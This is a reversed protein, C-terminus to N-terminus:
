KRFLKKRLAMMEDLMETTKTLFDLCEPNNALIFASEAVSRAFDIDIEDATLPCVFACRPDINVKIQIGDTGNYTFPFLPFIRCSWPRKERRCNGKCVLIECGDSCVNVDGCERCIDAEGPLLEMGDNESGHCCNKDCLKGCDGKIPTFDGIAEYAKLIHEPM